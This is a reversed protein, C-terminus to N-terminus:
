RRPTSQRCANPWLQLGNLTGDGGICILGDIGLYKLRSAILDLEDKKISMTAPHVSSRRGDISNPFPRFLPNLHVHPVRSNFATFGKIFGYIELKLQNARVVARITANLAPTM